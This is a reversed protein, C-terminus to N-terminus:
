YGFTYIQRFTADGKSPDIPGFDDWRSIRSVVCREVRTNNLTSSIVNVNKVKGDPTITFRIALKGKLDPNEKLERQYCYQISSNHRNVVESIADSSRSESKIGREDEISSIDEVVISGTRGIDTSKVEGIGEILGDIGSGTTTTREGKRSRNYAGSGDGAGAGGVSKGTKKLKDLGGLVEDLDRNGGAKDGLLDAVGSGKTNEGSGTLLGLLGQSSVQQSIQDQSSQGKGTGGAIGHSGSSASMSSEGSDVNSAGTAGKGGGSISEGTRKIKQSGQLEETVALKQDSDVQEALADKSLILQAFKQQFREIDAQNMATDPPHIAYYFAISFHVIFSILLIIGFRKDFHAFMNREFNKPLYGAMSGNEINFEVDANKDDNFSHHVGHKNV